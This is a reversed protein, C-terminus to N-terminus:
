HALVAVGNPSVKYGKSTLYEVERGYISQIKNGSQDLIFGGKDNTVFLNAPKNPDSVLRINDGRTIAQDLWPKNVQEWFDGTVKNWYGLKDGSELIPMHEKQLEGWRPSRLINVGGPNEGQLTAKAEPIQEGRRAVVNVDKLTGTVSTTKEADLKITNGGYLQEKGRSVIELQNGREFSGMPRGASSTIKTPGAAPSEIPTPKALPEAKPAAELPNVKPQTLPATRAGAAGEGAAALRTAGASILRGAAAGAAMSVGANTVAEGVAIGGREGQAYGVGAPDNVAQISETAQRTLNAKDEAALRDAKEQPTLNAERTIADWTDVPHAVTQAMGKLAKWGGEPLGVVFGGTQAALKQAQAGLSPSEQGNLDVQTQKTAAAIGDNVAKDTVVDKTIAADLKARADVLRQNAATTDLGQRKLSLLEKNADYVEAQAAVATSHAAVAEDIPKALKQVKPAVDDKETVIKEPDPKLQQGGPEVVQEGKKVLDEDAFAARPGALVAVLALLVCGLAYRLRAFARAHSRPLGM